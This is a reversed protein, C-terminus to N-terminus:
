ENTEEETSAAERSLAVLEEVLLIHRQKSEEEDKRFATTVVVELMRVLLNTSPEAKLSKRLQQIDCALEAVKLKKELVVSEAIKAVLSHKVIECQEKLAAIEGLAVDREVGIEGCRNTLEKVKDESRGIADRMADKQTHLQRIQTSLSKNEITIQDLQEKLAVYKGATEQLQEQLWIKKAPWSDRDPCGVDIPHDLECMKCLRNNAVGTLVQISEAKRDSLRCVIKLDAMVEQWDVKWAPIASYKSEMEMTVTGPKPEPQRLLPIADGIGLIISAFLIREPGRYEAVMQKKLLDVNEQLGDAVKNPDKNM